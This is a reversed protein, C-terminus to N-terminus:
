PGIAAGVGVALFARTWHIDVLTWQIDKKESPYGNKETPYGIWAFPYGVLLYPCGNNDMPCRITWHISDMITGPYGNPEGQIDMQYVNVDLADLVYGISEGCTDRRWSAPNWLFPAHTWRIDLPYGNIDTSAPMNGSALHVWTPTSTRQMNLLM